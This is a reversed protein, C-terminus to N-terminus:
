GTSRRILIRMLAFNENRYEWPSPSPQASALCNKLQDYTIGDCKLGSTHTLLQRFTMNDVASSRKWHKLLYPGIKRDVSIGKEDLLKQLATGTFVKSVSAMTIKDTAALKRPSSDPARRADGAAGESWM